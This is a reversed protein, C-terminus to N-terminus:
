GGRAEEQISRPSTLLLFADRAHLCRSCDTPCATAPQFFFFSADTSPMMYLRHSFFQLKELLFYHDPFTSPNTSTVSGHQTRPYTRKNNILSRHSSHLSPGAPIKQVSRWRYCPPRDAPSKLCHCVVPCCLAAHPARSSAGSRTGPGSYRMTILACGFVAECSRWPSSLRGNSRNRDWKDYM